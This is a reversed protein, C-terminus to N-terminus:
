AGASSEIIADAAERVMARAQRSGVGGRALTSRLWIGDILSAITDAVRPAQHLPVLPRVAHLLNDHLRRQYVRQIRGLRASHNAQAWFALWVAGLEPDFQEYSLCADIIAGLRSHPGTARSLRAVMDARLASGLYRLTAELLGARDDFYHAVLGSSLGARGAIEALSAGALGRAGITSIAAEIFQRRRKEESSKRLSRLKAPADFKVVNM